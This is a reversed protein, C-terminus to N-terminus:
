LLCNLSIKCNFCYFFNCIFFFNSHWYHFRNIINQMIVTRDFIFYVIKKRPRWCVFKIQLALFLMLLMVLAGSFFPWDRGFFGFAFGAWAPGTIRAMASCSHAIGLLSGREDVGSFKSVLSSLSPNNISVGFVIFGFASCLSITGLTFPLMLSGICIFIAGFVILRLEGFKRSLRGVLFWLTAAATLGMFAYIEGNQQPGWGITRESWMVFTTEIGSFVFPTMTIVILLM